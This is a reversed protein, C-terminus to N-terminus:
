RVRRACTPACERTGSVVAVGLGGRARLVEGVREGRGAAGSRAGCFGEGSGSM